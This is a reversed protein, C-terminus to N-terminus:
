FAIQATFNDREAIRFSLPVYDINPRLSATVQGGFSFNPATLIIQRGVKTQLNLRAIMSRVAVPKRM